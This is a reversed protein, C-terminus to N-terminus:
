ARNKVLMVERIREATAAEIRLAAALRDLFRRESADLTGDALVLDAAVAFVSPRLRAPISRAVDGIVRDAGRQEVQSRMREIDRGVAEGSRRRFRRMSWILHHARTLEERSVHDNADMAAILCALIAEDSKPKKPM